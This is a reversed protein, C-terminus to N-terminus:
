MEGDSCLRSSEKGKGKGEQQSMWSYYGYEKRKTGQKAKAENKIEGDSAEGTRTM